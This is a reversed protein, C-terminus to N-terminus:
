RNVKILNNSINDFSIVIFDIQNILSGFGHGVINVADVALSAVLFDEAGALSDDEGLLCPSLERGLQGFLEVGLEPVNESKGGFFGDDLGGLM